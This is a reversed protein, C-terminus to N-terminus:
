QPDLDTEEPTTQRKTAEQEATMVLRALQSRSHVGLKQYVHSLHAEVTRSSVMLAAAAERNSAGGAVVLAVRLEQRTLHDLGAPLADPAIEASSVEGSIIGQAVDDLRRNHERAYDRMRVFAEDIDMGAQEALVGKSQEIVARTQLASQLQEALGYAERVSREHVIGITAVDAFAQAVALDGAELGGPASLFLNLAGIRDDRLRMPFALVSRFGADLAAPAFRPWRAISEELHEADVREGSRHCDFCPGEESQLEFLGLLRMRESSSALVELGGRQNTLMVGAEAAGFLALCRATLTHLFGVPDYADILTDALEVFTRSLLEADAM